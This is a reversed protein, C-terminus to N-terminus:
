THRLNHPFRKGVIPLINAIAGAWVRGVDALVGVQQLREGTEDTSALTVDGDQRGFNQLYKL